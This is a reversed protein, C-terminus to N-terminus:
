KSIIPPHVVVSPRRADEQLRSPLMKPFKIYKAHVWNPIPTEHKIPILSPIRETRITTQPDDPLEAWISIICESYFRKLRYGHTIEYARRINRSREVTTAAASITDTAADSLELLFALRIMYASHDADDWDEREGTLKDDETMRRALAQNDASPYRKVIEQSYGRLIQPPVFDFGKSTDFKSLPHSNPVSEFIEQMEDTEDHIPLSQSQGPHYYEYAQYLKDVKQRADKKDLAVSQVVARIRKLYARQIATEKLAKETWGLRTAVESLQTVHYDFDEHEVDGVTVMAQEPVRDMVHPPRDWWDEPEYRLNKKVKAAGRRRTGEEEENEENGYQIDPNGETGLDQVM